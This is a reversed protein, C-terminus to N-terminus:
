QAAGLVIPSGISRGLMIKANGDAKGSGDPKLRTLHIGRVAEDAIHLVGPEPESPIGFAAVMAPPHDGHAPLFGITEPIRGRYGRVDRLYREVLSSKTPQRRRWLFLATRLRDAAAAQERREIEEQVRQADPDVRRPRSPAGYERVAGGAGCRACKFTAFDSQKMWVRLVPRRPQERATSFPRM